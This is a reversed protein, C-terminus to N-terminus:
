YEEDPVGLLVLKKLIENLNGLKKEFEAKQTYFGNGKKILIPHIFNRNARIEHLFEKKTKDIIPMDSSTFFNILDNLMINNINKFNIEDDLGKKM